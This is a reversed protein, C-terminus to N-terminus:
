FQSPRRGALSIATLPLWRKCWSCERLEPEIKFRVDLAREVFISLQQGARFHLSSRPGTCSREPFRNEANTVALVAALAAGFRVAQWFRDFDKHCWRLPNWFACRDNSM